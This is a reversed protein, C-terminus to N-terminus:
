HSVAALTAGSSVTMCCSGRCAHLETDGAVIALQVEALRSPLAELMSTLLRDDGDLWQFLTKGLASLQEPSLGAYYLNAENLFSAIGSLPMSRQSGRLREDTWFLVRVSERTERTFEVVLTPLPTLM